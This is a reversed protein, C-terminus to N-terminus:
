LGNESLDVVRKLGKDLSVKPEWNLWSPNKNLDFEEILLLNIDSYDTGLSVIKCKSNTLKKIKKTLELLTFFRKSAVFCELYNKKIKNSSNLLHEIFSIFDNIYIFNRILQSNYLILSEKKGIMKSVIKNIFKHLKDRPGYVIDCHINVIGIDSKTKKLFNRFKAKSDYYTEGKGKSIISKPVTNLNFVKNTDLNIFLKINKKKIKNFLNKSDLYNIRKIINSDGVIVGRNNFVIDIKRQDLLDDLDNYHYIRNRLSVRNIKDTLFFYNKNKNFRKYINSGIYGDVSTFLVIKNLM